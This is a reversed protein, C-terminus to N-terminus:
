AMDGDETFEYENAEIMDIAYEESTVYDYESNLSSLAIDMLWQAVDKAWEGISELQDLVNPHNSLYPVSCDASCSWRSSNFFAEVERAEPLQWICPRVSPLVPFDDWIKPFDKKAAEIGNIIDVASAQGDLHVVQQRDLDFGKLELGYFGFAEGVQCIYEGTLGYWEHYPGDHLVWAIAAAQAEESLEDFKYLKVEKIRM